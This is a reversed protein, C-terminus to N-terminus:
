FLVANDIKWSGGIKKFQIDQSMTTGDGVHQVLKAVATTGDPQIHLNVLEPVPNSKADTNKDSLVQAIFDRMFARKDQIKAALRDAFQEDTEDVHRQRHDLGYRAEFAAKQKDPDTPTPADTPTDMTMMGVFSVANLNIANPSLCELYVDVNGDRMAKTAAALTDAPAAYIAPATTPENAKAMTPISNFGLIMALVFIMKRM